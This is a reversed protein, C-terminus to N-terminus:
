VLVSPRDGRGSVTSMAAIAKAEVAPKDTSRAKTNAADSVAHAPKEHQRFCYAGSRAVAAAPDSAAANAAGNKRSNIALPGVAVPRPKPTRSKERKARRGSIRMKRM